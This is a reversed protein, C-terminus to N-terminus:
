RGINSMDIQMCIVHRRLAGRSYTKVDDYYEQSGDWVLIIVDSLEVIGIHSLTFTPSGKSKALRYGVGDKHSCLVEVNPDIFYQKDILESCYKTAKAVDINGLCVFGIKKM